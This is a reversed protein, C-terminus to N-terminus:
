PGARGWPDSPFGLGKAAQLQAPGWHVPLHVGPSPGPGAQQRGEPPLTDLGVSKPTHAGVAVSSGKVVASLPPAAARPM